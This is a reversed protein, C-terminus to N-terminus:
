PTASALFDQLTCLSRSRADIFAVHVVAEAALTGAVLIQQTFRARYSVDDDDETEPVLLATHVQLEPGALERRYDVEVRSVVPVVAGGRRIRHGDMWAWRGAELYELVVANNVHGLSDLDNPRVRLDLVIPASHMTTPSPQSPRALPDAVVAVVASAYDGSHTVTLQVRWGERELLAAFAGHARLQPAGRPDHVIELDTWFGGDVRPLAKFLAEKGAFAGALSHAPSAARAFRDCEGATFMVGAELLDSRAALESISQLDHGLAILM